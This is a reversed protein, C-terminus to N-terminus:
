GVVRPEFLGTVQMKSYALNTATNVFAGFGLQAGSGVAMQSIVQTDLSAESASDGFNNWVDTPPPIPTPRLLFIHARVALGLKEVWAMM